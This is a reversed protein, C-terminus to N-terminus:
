AAFSDAVVPPAIASAVADLDHETAEFVAASDYDAM